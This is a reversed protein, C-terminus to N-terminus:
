LPLGMEMAVQYTDVFQDYEIIRGDKFVLKDMMETELQVPATRHRVIGRRQILATEQREDIYINVSQLGSSDWDRVLTDVVNRMADAGRNVQTFPALRDTGVIRHCCDPHFTAFVGDLDGKDRMAYYNEVADLIAQRDAM